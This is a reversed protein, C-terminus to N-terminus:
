GLARQGRSQFPLSCGALSTGPTGQGCTIIVFGLPWTMTEPGTPLSLALWVWCTSRTGLPRWPSGPVFFPVLLCQCPQAEQHHPPLKLRWARGPLSLNILPSSAPINQLVQNLPLEWGGLGLDEDIWLEPSNNVCM